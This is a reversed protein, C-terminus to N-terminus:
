SITRAQVIYMMKVTCCNRQIEHIREYGVAPRAQRPISGGRGCRHLRRRTEAMLRKTRAQEYGRRGRKKEGSIIELTVVGGSCCSTLKIRLFAKKPYDGFIIKLVKCTIWLLLGLKRWLLVETPSDGFIIKLIKCMIWLILSLRWFLLGLKRFFLVVNTKETPDFIIKLVKYM